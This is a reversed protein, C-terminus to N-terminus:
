EETAADGALIAHPAPFALLGRLFQAGAVEDVQSGPRDDRADKSLIRLAPNRMFNLGALRRWSSAM